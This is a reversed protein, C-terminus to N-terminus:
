SSTPVISFVANDRNLACQAYAVKGGDEVVLTARVDLIDIIRRRSAFDEEAAGLGQAVEAVFEQLSQIQESSLMREKLQAKMGAQEQELAIITAELRSKRDTLMEKPFDGQLYLDLLRALQAQNDILLGEVIKLRERMPGSERDCDTQYKSLGRALEEPDSLLSKVWKWVADDVHDARFGPTHCKKLRDKDGVVPCGYYKYKGNPGVRTTLRTGCSGCTLRQRLLYSYKTNRSADRRGCKLREQALEWTKRDIIAPVEVSLLNEKANRVTVGDVKKAKSYYWTGAYTENQLLRWVTSRAWKGYKNYKKVLTGMKDGLTPIELATLRTAIACNSMPGVKGDGVIYWTFISRVVEAEPEHIVLMTLGNNKALRYGYPTRGHSIVNGAKVKQRRGRTSRECIKLREYEAISAKINKQLNGEPTDPYDGLVYEIQVGARKLEEEVILQKALSRSLRDIERVVLVDFEGNRAMKRIRELQELEFAAGSAGRDDEALEAVIRWGQECAFERGMELQGALNRGDKGRDDSSVRAYLVARKDM